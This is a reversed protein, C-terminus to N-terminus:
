PVLELWELRANGELVLERPADVKWTREVTGAPLRDLVRGDLLIAFPTSSTVRVTLM